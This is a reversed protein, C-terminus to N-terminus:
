RLLFSVLSLPIHKKALFYANSRRHPDNFGALLINRSEAMEDNHNEQKELKRIKDASYLIFIYNVFATIEMIFFALDVNGSPDESNNQFKLINM